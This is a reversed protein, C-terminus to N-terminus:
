VRVAGMSLAKALNPDNPAFNRTSGDPAQLTVMAGTSPSPANMQSLSMPRPQQAMPQSMFPAPPGGMPGRAALGPLQGTAMQGLALYPQAALTQAAKQGKLFELQQQAAEAQLSAADKVASSQMKAAAVSAASSAGAMILPIAVAAPM